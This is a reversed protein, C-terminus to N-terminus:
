PQFGGLDINQGTNDTTGTSGLGRQQALIATLIANMQQQSGASASANAMSGLLNSLASGAAGSQQGTLQSLTLYMDAPNGSSGYTAQELARQFASNTLQDQLSAGTVGQNFAQNQAATQYGQEALLDSFQTQADQVSGQLANQFLTDRENQLSQARTNALDGYSTRLMGSGLQGTAAAARAADRLAAQYQPDTSSAYTDYQQNALAFRDLSAGPTIQQSRLDSSPNVTTMNPALGSVTGAGSPGVTGAGGTTNGTTGGSTGGTTNSTGGTQSVSSSVGPPLNSGVGSSPTGTDTGSGAPSLSGVPYGLAQLTAGYQQSYDSPLSTALQPNQQLLQMMVPTVVGPSVGGGSLTQSILDALANYGGAVPNGNADTTLGNQLYQAPAPAPATPAAGTGAGYYQTADNRQANIQNWLQEDQPNTFTGYQQIEQTLRDLEPQTQQLAQTYGQMNQSLPANAAQQQNYNAAMYQQFAPSSMYQSLATSSLNNLAPNSQYEYSTNPNFLQSGYPVTTGNQTVPTAANPNFQLQGGETGSVQFTQNTGPITYYFNGYNAGSGLSFGPPLGGPATTSGTGVPNPPTYPASSLQTAFSTDLPTTSAPLVSGGAMIAQALQQPTSGGLQSAYQGTIGSLYMQQTAPDMQSFNAPLQATASQLASQFPSTQATGIAGTTPPQYSLQTGPTQYNTAVPQPTLAASTSFALPDMASTVAGQQTSATTQTPQLATPTAAAPTAPTPTPTAPGTPAKIASAQQTSVTPTPQPQSTATPTTPITGLLSIAM